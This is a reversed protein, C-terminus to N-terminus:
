PRKQAPAPKAPAKAPPAQKRPPPPPSVVPPSAITPAKGADSGVVLFGAIAVPMMGGLPMVESLSKGSLRVSLKLTRPDKTVDAKFQGDGTYSEMVKQLDAKRRILEDVQKNGRYSDLAGLMIKAFGRPAIQSARLIDIAGHSMQEMNDMGAKTTDIWTWGIGDRHVSFSWHKHRKIADGLFNQAGIEALAEKRANPSLSVSLAFVPKPAIVDAAYGLTTGASRAPARWTDAIRDKILSTTGAILVGGRTIGVANGDGADFWAAGSAKVSAKGAITAVKDITTINFKGHVAVVFSPEQNPNLKVFATADSIDTALDIGTMQKVLGRPGEVEAVMKRVAKALEPSAKIQPHNPLNTLIKYNHPILAGADVHAILDADPVAYELAAEPTPAKPNTGVSFGSLGMLLTILEVIGVNM